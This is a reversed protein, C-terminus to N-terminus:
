HEEAPSEIYVWRSSLFRDIIVGRPSQVGEPVSLRLIMQQNPPNRQFFDALQHGVESDTRAYGYLTEVSGSAALQYCHWQGSDTFEHSFLHDPKVVVRFDMSKGKPRQAVYDDWPMTQYGVATEWDVKAGQHTLEVIIKQPVRDTVVVTATWFNGEIGTMAPQLNRISRLRPQLFKKEAYYQRVMPGVRDPHRILTIMREVSAADYFNRIGEELMEITRMAEMEEQAESKEAVVAQKKVETFKSESHKVRTLSWMLAALMAIGVLAFWGWPIPKRAHAAGWPQEVSELMTPIRDMIEEIGPEHSRNAGAKKPAPLEQQQQIKAQTKQRRDPTPQLKVAEGREEVLDVGNGASGSPRLRVVEM